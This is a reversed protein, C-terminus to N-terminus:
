SSLSRMKKLRLISPIEDEKTGHNFGSVFSSSIEEM